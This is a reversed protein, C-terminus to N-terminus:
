GICFLCSYPMEYSFKCMYGIKLPSNDPIVCSPDLGSGELVYYSKTLEKGSSDYIYYNRNTTLSSYTGWFSGPTINLGSPPRDPVCPWTGQRRDPIASVYGGDDYNIAIGNKSRLRKLHYGLTGGANMKKTVYDYALTDLSLPLPGYIYKPNNNYAYPTYIGDYMYYNNLMSDIFNVSGIKTLPKKNIFRKHYIKTYGDYIYLTRVNTDKSGDSKILGIVDGDSYSKYYMDSTDTVTYDLDVNNFNNKQLITKAPTNYIQGCRNYISDSAIAGIFDGYYFERGSKLTYKTESITNFMGYNPIIYKENTYEYSITKVQKAQPISLVKNPLIVDIADTLSKDPIRYRSDNIYYSDTYYSNTYSNGSNAITSLETVGYKNFDPNSNVESRIPWEVNVSKNLGNICLVVHNKTCSTLGSDNQENKFYNFGVIYAKQGNLVWYDGISMNYFTGNQIAEYQLDSIETGLSVGETAPKLLNDLVKIRKSNEEIKEANENIKNALNGAADEDLLGKIGDLWTNFDDTLNAITQAIFRDDNLVELVGTVIPCDATGIKNEINGASITTAGKPRTIYALPYQHIESTNTLAPKAPSSAATGYIYKITNARVEASNNVELVIADIRPYTSNASPLTLYLAEDNLTWTHNFWARGSGIKVQNATSTGEVKLAEGFGQYVGDLIIGDFISSIEEANYKRDHNVSNFFGSTVTM